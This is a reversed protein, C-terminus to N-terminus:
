QKWKSTMKKLYISQGLKLITIVKEVIQYVNLNSKKKFNIHTDTFQVIKFEGNTNFTLKINNQANVTVVCLLVAIIYYYHKKM